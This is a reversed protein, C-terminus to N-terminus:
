WNNLNNVYVAVTSTQTIAHFSNVIDCASDLSFRDAIYTCFRHWPVNQPSFGTGRWWQIAESKLYSVAIETRQEIPTRAASFYQEINQIWSDADVGEFEAINLKAPKVSLINRRTEPAYPRHRDRKFEAYQFEEVTMLHQVGQVQQQQPTHLEQKNATHNPHRYPGKPTGDLNLERGTAKDVLVASGGTAPEQKDM